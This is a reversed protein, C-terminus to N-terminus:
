KAQAPETRLDLTVLDLLNTSLEIIQEPTFGESRLQRYFSRAVTRNRNDLLTETNMAVERTIM